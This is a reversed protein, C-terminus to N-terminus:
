RYRHGRRRATGTVIGGHRLATPHRARSLPAELRAVARSLGRGRRHVIRCRRPKAHDFIGMEAIKTNAVCNLAVGGMMVLNNMGTRSQVWSALDCLYDETIKQVSAAINEIDTLDPRWDRIGRHMNRNLVFRHDAKDAVLDEMIDDYYIPKGLAAMGMMIYEEENPKFGIRQTFASYFLGVSHPYSQSWVKTLKNGQGVWVSITDFEGIADCVIVAASDFPSTYYGAAAHSEHHGVVSVPVGGLGMDRLHSRLSPTSRLAEWQGAYAFRAAKHFPREYYIIREPKEGQLADDLLARNIHGDNKVRSYREAHGAFLIQDNEVVAASADHGLTTIGLLM